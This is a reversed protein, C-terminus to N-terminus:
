ARDLQLIFGCKDPFSLGELRAVGMVEEIERSTLHVRSNLM